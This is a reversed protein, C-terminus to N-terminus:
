RAPLKGPAVAPWQASDRASPHFVQIESKQEQEALWARIAAQQERALLHSQIEPRAEDLTKARGRRRQHLRVIFFEEGRPLPGIAEGPKLMSVAERMAPSLADCDVWGIDGGQAARLGISRRQALRGFDEGKRLAAQIEEAAAKERVAIIQIWIEERKLDQKHAAYHQEVQEETVRVTEVLAATVRAALMGDRLTEFLSRDDLGREKMWTGFSKLDNFRRRLSILAKDHDKDRLTLKRRAAEQLLLRRHILTQLAMRELENSDADHPELSALTRDFEARTVPEGNVRAVIEPDAGKSAPISGAMVLAVCINKFAEM